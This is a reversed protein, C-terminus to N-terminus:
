SVWTIMELAVRQRKFLNYMEGYFRNRADTNDRAISLANFLSRGVGRYRKQLNEPWEEPMPIEPELIVGELIKQLNAKKFMELKKGTVM